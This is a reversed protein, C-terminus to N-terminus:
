CVITATLHPMEGAASLKSRDSLPWNCDQRLGLGLAYFRSIHQLSSKAISTRLYQRATFPATADLAQMGPHEVAYSSYLQVAASCNLSTFCVLIKTDCQM